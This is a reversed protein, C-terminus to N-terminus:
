AVYEARGDAIYALHLLIAPIAYSVPVAEVKGTM